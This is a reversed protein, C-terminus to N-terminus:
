ATVKKNILGSGTPWLATEQQDSRWGAGKLLRHFSNGMELCRLPRHLLMEFLHWQCNCDRGSSQFIFRGSEVSNCNEVLRLMLLGQKLSAGLHRPNPFKYNTSSLAVLVEQFFFLNFSKRAFM